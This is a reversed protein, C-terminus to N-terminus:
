NNNLILLIIKSNVFFWILVSLFSMSIKESMLEQCDLLSLALKTELNFALYKEDPLSWPKREANKM